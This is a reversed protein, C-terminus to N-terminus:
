AGEPKEIREFTYVWVWPNTDWGYGRKANLSDWLDRFAEIAARQAKMAGVIAIAKDEVWGDPETFDPKVGEDLAELFRIDQVREARVDTVRLFIRAAERPM